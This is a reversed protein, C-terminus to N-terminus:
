SGRVKQVTLGTSRLRDGHGFRLPHLVTQEPKDKAQEYWNSVELFDGEEGSLRLGLQEFQQRKHCVLGTPISGAVANVNNTLPYYAVLGPM